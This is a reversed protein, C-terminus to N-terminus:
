IIERPYEQPELLENQNSTIPLLFLVSDQDKEDGGVESGSRFSGNSSGILSLLFLLRGAEDGESVFDGREFSDEVVRKM